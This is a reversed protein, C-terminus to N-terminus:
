PKQVGQANMRIRYLSTTATIFLENKESGGFTLNTVMEPVPILGIKAGDPAFVQVGEFTAVYLRDETDVRMGDPVGSDIEAFLEPEDKVVGNEVPFVFVSHYEASSDSVYLRDEAASFCLGNPRHLKLSVTGPAGPDDTVSFVGCADYEMAQQYVALEGNDLRVGFPPDTFFIAGDSGRVVVDNPSNLVCGNTSSALVHRHGHADYRVLRRTTHECSVLEEARTMYLGIAVHSNNVYTSLGDTPSWRLIRNTPLDTFFVAEASPSWVPGETFVLGSTLAEVTQERTVSSFREDYVEVSKSM